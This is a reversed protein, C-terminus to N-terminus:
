SKANIIFRKIKDLDKLGDVEVGSSVDVAFPQSLQVASAVNEPNLGGALFFTHKQSLYQAVKWDFVRGTGGLASADQTDLLLASHVGTVSSIKQELSETPDDATNAPVHLAKWTTVTINKASEPTENGSLQVIDLGVEELTQQVMEPDNNAFVGVTLPCMVSVAKHLELARERYWESALM